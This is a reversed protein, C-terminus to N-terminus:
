VSLEGKNGGGWEGKAERGQTRAQSVRRERALAYRRLLFAVGGEGEQERALGLRFFPRVVAPPHIGVDHPIIAHLPPLLRELHRGSARVEDRRRERRGRRCGGPLLGVPCCLLRVTPRMPAHASVASQQTTLSAGGGGGEAAVALPRAVALVALLARRGGGRPAASAKGAGRGSLAMSASVPVSVSVPVPLRSAARGSLLLLLLLLQGTRLQLAMAGLLSV